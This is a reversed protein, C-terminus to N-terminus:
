GVLIVDPCIIAVEAVEFPSKTVGGNLQPTHAMRFFHHNLLPIQELIGKVLEFTPIIPYKGLNCRM